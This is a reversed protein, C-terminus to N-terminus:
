ADLMLMKDPLGREGLATGGEPTPIVSSPPRAPRGGAAKRIAKKVRWLNNAAPIAAVRQKRERGCRFVRANCAPSGRSPLMKAANMQQAGICCELMAIERVIGGGGRAM